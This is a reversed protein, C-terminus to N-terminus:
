INPPHHHDHRHHNVALCFGLGRFKVFWICELVCVCVSHHQVTHNHHITQDYDGHDVGGGPEGVFM